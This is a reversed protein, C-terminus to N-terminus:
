NLIVCLFVFSCKGSAQPPLHPQKLLWEKIKALCDGISDDDMGMEKHMMAVCSSDPGALVTM